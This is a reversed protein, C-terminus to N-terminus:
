FEYYRIVPPTEVVVLETQNVYIPVDSYTFHVKNIIVFYNFKSLAVIFPLLAYAHM